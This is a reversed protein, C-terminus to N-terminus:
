FIGMPFTSLEIWTVHFIGYSSLIFITEGLNALGGLRAPMDCM